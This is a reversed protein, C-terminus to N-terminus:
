MSTNSGAYYLRAHRLSASAISRWIEISIRSYYMNFMVIYPIKICVYMFITPIHYWLCWYILDFVIRILLCKIIIKFIEKMYGENEPASSCGKKFFILAWWSICFPCLKDQVWGWLVIYTSKFFFFSIITIRYCLFAYNNYNCIRFIGRTVDLASSITTITSMLGLMQLYRFISNKMGLRFTVYKFMIHICLITIRFSIILIHITTPMPKTLRVFM